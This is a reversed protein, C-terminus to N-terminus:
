KLGSKLGSAPDPQHCMVCTTKDEPNKGKVPHEAPLPWHCEGCRQSPINTWQLQNATLDAFIPAHQPVSQLVQPAQRGTRSLYYLLGFVALVIVLFILDRRKM